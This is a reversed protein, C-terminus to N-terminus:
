ATWSCIKLANDVFDSNEQISSKTDPTVKLKELANSNKKDSLEQYM